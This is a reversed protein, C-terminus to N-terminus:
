HDLHGSYQEGKVLKNGEFSIMKEAICVRQFQTVPHLDLIIFQLLTLNKLYTTYRM